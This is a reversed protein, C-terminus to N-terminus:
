QKPTSQPSAPQELSKTGLPTPFLSRYFVANRDSQDKQKDRIRQLFGEPLKVRNFEAFPKDFIEKKADLRIDVTKRSSVSCGYQLNVVSIGRYFDRMYGTLAMAGSMSWGSSEAVNLNTTFIAQRKSVPDAFAIIASRVSQNRLIGPPPEVALTGGYPLEKPDLPRLWRMSAYWPVWQSKIDSAWPLPTKSEDFYLDILCHEVKRCANVQGGFGCEQYGSDEIRFAAAAVGQVDEIFKAPMGFLDAFEKTHVWVNNDKYFAQGDYTQNIEYRQSSGNRPTSLRQQAADQTWACTCALLLWSLTTQKLTSKM